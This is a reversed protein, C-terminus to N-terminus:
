HYGGFIGSAQGLGIGLGGMGVQRMGMNQQAAMQRQQAALYEHNLSASSAAKKAKAMEILDLLADDDNAYMEAIRMKLKYDEIKDGDERLITNEEKYNEISRKLRDADDNLCRIEASLIKRAIAKIM